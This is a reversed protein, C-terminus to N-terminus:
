YIAVQVWTGIATDALTCGVTREGYRFTIEMEYSTGESTEGEEIQLDRMGALLERYLPGIEDLYYGDETYQFYPFGLTAPRKEVLGVPRLMKVFGSPIFAPVGSPVGIAANGFDGMMGAAAGDPVTDLGYTLDAPAPSLPTMHYTQLGQYLSLSEHAVRKLGKDDSFRGELAGIGAGPLEAYVTECCVTFIVQQGGCDATAMGSLGARQRRNLKGGAVLYEKESFPRFALSVAQEYANAEGQLYSLITPSAGTQERWRWLRLTGDYSDGNKEGLFLINWVDKQKNQEPTRGEDNFYLMQTATASQHPSRAPPVTLVGELKATAIPNLQLYLVAKDGETILLYPLETTTGYRRQYNMPLAFIGSTQMTNAISRTRMPLLGYQREGTDGMSKEELASKAEPSLADVQVKGMSDYGFNMYGDPQPEETMPNVGQPFYRTLHLATEYGGSEDPYFAGEFTLIGAGYAPQMNQPDAMEGSFWLAPTNSHEQEPATSPSVSSLNPAASSDAASPEASAPPKAQGCGALFVPLLLSGMLVACRKM